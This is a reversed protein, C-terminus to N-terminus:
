RGATVVPPTHLPGGRSNPRPTNTCPRPPSGRAPFRESVRQQASGGTVRLFGRRVFPTRFNSDDSAPPATSADNETLHRAILSRVNKNKNKEGGRVVCVGPIKRRICSPRVVDVAANQGFAYRFIGFVSYIVDKSFDDFFFFFSRFRWSRYYVRTM